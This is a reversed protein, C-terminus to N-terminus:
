KLLVMMLMVTLLSLNAKLKKLMFPILEKLFIDTIFLKMLTCNLM